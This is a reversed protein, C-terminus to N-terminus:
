LGGHANSVHGIARRGTALDGFDVANGETAIEVSDITNLETSSPTTRGGAFVGRTPSSVGGAETRAVSLDGFNTPRGTTAFYIFDIDQHTGDPNSGGGFLARTANYVGMCQSRSKSLDGFDQADGLTAITIFEMNSTVAPVSGGAILGRTPSSAGEGNRRDQILDGFDARTEATSAITIYEIAAIHADSPSQGGAFVGRTGNSMGALALKNASLTDTFNTSNGTSAFTIFQIKNTFGPSPVEQGGAFVGRTRSAASSLWRTHAVSLDGFDTGNGTSSINIYEIGAGSTYGGAFVGRAGPQRDGATGLNPTSLQFEAWQSGDWLEPKNSDTNFRIAGRPIEGSPPLNSM